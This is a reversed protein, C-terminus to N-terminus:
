IRYNKVNLEYIKNHMSAITKYTRAMAFFPISVAIFILGAPISTILVLLGFLLLLIAVILALIRSVKYMKLKAISGNPKIIGSPDKGIVCGAQYLSHYKKWEQPTLLNEIESYSTKPSDSQINDSYIRKSSSSHSSGKYVDNVGFTTKSYVKNYAAKKPDKVWGSGKKGYGPVVAKKVARKAQGTTRAKISKKVSPKRMGYKM